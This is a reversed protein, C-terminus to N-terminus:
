FILYQPPISLRIIYGLIVEFKSDVQRLRVLALIVPMHKQTKNQSSQKVKGIAILESGLKM